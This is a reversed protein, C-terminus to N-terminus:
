LKILPFRLTDSVDRLPGPTKPSLMSIMQRHFPSVASAVAGDNMVKNPTGNAAVRLVQVRQLLDDRERELMEIRNDKATDMAKRAPSQMMLTRLRAIEKHADDLETELAEVDANLVIPSEPSRSLSRSKEKERELERQLTSITGQLEAIEEDHSEVKRDAVELAEQM